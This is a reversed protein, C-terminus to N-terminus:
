LFNSCNLCESEDSVNQVFAINKTSNLKTKIFINMMIIKCNNLTKFNNLMIKINTSKLIFVIRSYMAIVTGM